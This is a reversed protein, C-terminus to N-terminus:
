SNLFTCLFKYSASVLVDKTAKQITSYSASTPQTRKPEKLIYKEVNSWIGLVREAVRDDEVWWTAWFKLPFVTSGTVTTYDDRRAPSHHFLYWLARLMGETKWDRDQCGTCIAAHVVHLGCSGVNLLDADEKERGECFLSLLKWNVRPGDMSIQLLKRNNM